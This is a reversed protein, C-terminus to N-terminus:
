SSYDSLIRALNEEGQVYFGEELQARETEPLITLPIETKEKLKLKKQDDEEYVSLYGNYSGLYFVEDSKGEIKCRLIVKDPAFYVIQWDTYVSQLQDRTMGELFEPVPEVQEKTIADNTYYYQYTLEGDKKIKVESNVVPTVFLSNLNTNDMQSIQTQSFYYGFGLFTFFTLISLGLVYKKMIIWRM